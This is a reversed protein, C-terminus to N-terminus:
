KGARVLKRITRASFNPFGLPGLGTLVNTSNFSLLSLNQNPTGTQLTLPNTAGASLVDFDGSFSLAEGVFREAFSVGISVLVGNYNVGGGGAAPLDDFDTTQVCDLTSPDVVLIAGGSIVGSKQSDSEDGDLPAALDM